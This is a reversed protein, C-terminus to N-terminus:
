LLEVATKKVFQQRHGPQGVRAAEGARRTVPDGPGVKRGEREPKVYALGALSLLQGTHQSRVRARELLVRRPPQPCGPAEVEGGREHIQHGMWVKRRLNAVQNEGVDVAVHLERLRLGIFGTKVLDVRGVFAGAELPTPVGDLRLNPQGSALLAEPRVGHVPRELSRARLQEVLLDLERGLVGGSAM